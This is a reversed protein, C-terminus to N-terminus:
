GIIQSEKAPAAMARKIAFILTFPGIRGFVMAIMLIIKSIPALSETIGLSMGLTSFASVAEFFLAKFTHGQEIALLLFTSLMIWLAALSIIAIAKHLETREIRQGFLKVSKDGRIVARVAALALAVTTTKIGSGTSGPSTGIFAVVMIVLLTATQLTAIPVTHFGTGMSAIANFIGNIATKVPPMHNLSDNHELALFLVISSTTLLLTSTWIIKSSLTVTHNGKNYIYRIGERLSIFGTTGLLMLTSLVLLFPYNHSLHDLNDPFLTFGANSFSSVSHFLAYYWPNEPAITRFTDVLLLTGIFEILATLGIVFYVARQLNKKRKFGLLKGSLLETSQPVDFFTYLLSLTLIILGVAGIQILTLIVSLGFLSFNQLPVTLLGTGTVASIAIFLSDFISVPQTHAIPLCLLFFGLSILGCSLSLIIQNPSLRFLPDSIM